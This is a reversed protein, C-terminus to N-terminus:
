FTFQLGGIIRFGEDYYGVVTSYKDHLLNKMSVYVRAKSKFTYGATANLNVYDGLPQPGSSSFRDNEFPGVYSGFVSADFGSRHLYIGATLLREPIEKDSTYSGGPKRYESQMLIASAFLSMWGRYWPSKWELELGYQRSNRNEYFPAEVGIPNIYTDKTIHIGDSRNVTFLGAKFTGYESTTSQIGFDLMQRSESDLPNGESTLAGNPASIQGYAINGVLKITSSLPFSGGLNLRHQPAAWEDIIPAVNQFGSGSGEINFGGFENLYERSWRYGTEIKLLEFEHADIVVVSYTEIDARRGAYFRKGDPAKWRHYLAGVRLTNGPVLEM